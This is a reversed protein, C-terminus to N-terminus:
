RATSDYFVQDTRDDYFLRNNDDYVLGYLVRVQGRPADSAEILEYQGRAMQLYIRQQYVDAGTKSLHWYTRILHERARNTARNNPVEVALRYYHAASDLERSELGRLTFNLTRSEFTANRMFTVFTALCTLAAIVLLVILINRSAKKM